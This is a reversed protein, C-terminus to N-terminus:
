LVNGCWNLSRSIRRSAGSNSPHAKDSYRQVILRPNCSRFWHRYTSIVKHAEAGTSVGMCSSRMPRQEQVIATAPTRGVSLRSCQPLVLTEVERWLQKGWGGRREARLVRRRLPTGERGPRGRRSWRCCAGSLRATHFTQCVERVLVLSTYRRYIVEIM